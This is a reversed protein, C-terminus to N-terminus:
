YTKSMTEMSELRTCAIRLCAPSSSVCRSAHRNHNREHEGGPCPRSCCPRPGKGCEPESEQGRGPKRPVTGPDAQHDRAEHVHHLAVGQERYRSYQDDSFLTVTLAHTRARTHTNTQKHTHTRTHTATSHTNYTHTCYCRIYAGIHFHTRAHALERFLCAGGGFCVCVGM